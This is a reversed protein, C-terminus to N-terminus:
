KAALSSRQWRYDAHVTANIHILLTFHKAIYCYHSLYFKYHLFTFSTSGPGLHCLLIFINEKFLHFIPIQVPKIQYLTHVLNKTGLHNTLCEMCLMNCQTYSESGEAREVWGKRNKGRKGRERRQKKKTVKLNYM